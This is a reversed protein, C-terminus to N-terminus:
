DRESSYIPSANMGNNMFLRVLESSIGANELAVQVPSTSRTPCMFAILRYLGYLSVHSWDCEATDFAVYPFDKPILCGTVDCYNSRTKSFTVRPLQLMEHFSRGAVPALAHAVAEFEQRTGGFVQRTLEDDEAGDKFVVGFDSSAGKPLLVRRDDIVKYYADDRLFNTRELVGQRLEVFRCSSRGDRDHLAVSPSYWPLNHPQEDRRYGLFCQVRQSVDLVLEGGYWSSIDVESGLVFGPPRASPLLKTRAM